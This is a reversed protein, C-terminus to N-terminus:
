TNQFLESICVRFNNEIGRSFNSHRVSNGLAFILTDTAILNNQLCIDQYQNHLEEWAWDSSYKEMFHMGLSM